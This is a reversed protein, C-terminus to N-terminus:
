EFFSRGREGKAERSPWNYTEQRVGSLTGEEDSWPACSLLSLTLTAFDEYTCDTSVREYNVQFFPDRPPM